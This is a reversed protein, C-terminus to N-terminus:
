IAERKVDVLINKMMELYSDRGTTNPTPTMPSTPQASVQESFQTEKLQEEKRSERLSRTQGEFKEVAEATSNKARAVLEENQVHKDVKITTRQHEQEDKSLKSFAFADEVEEFTQEPSANAQDTLNLEILGAGTMNPTWIRSVTGPYYYTPIRWSGFNRAEATWAGDITEASRYNLNALAIGSRNVSAEAEPLLKTVLQSQEMSRNVGIGVKHAWHWLGAPSPFVNDAIMHTDLRNTRDATLNYECFMNTLYQIYESM